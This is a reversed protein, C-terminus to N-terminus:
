VNHTVEQLRAKYASLILFMEHETIGSIASLWLVNVLQSVTEAKYMMVILNKM